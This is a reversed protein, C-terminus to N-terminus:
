TTIQDISAKCTSAKHSFILTRRGTGYHWIGWAWFAGFIIIIIIIEMQEINVSGM